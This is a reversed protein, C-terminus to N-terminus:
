VARTLPTPMSTGGAQGPWAGIAAVWNGTKDSWAGGTDRMSIFRESVAVDRAVWIIEGYGALGLCLGGGSRDAGFAALSTALPTAGNMLDKDAFRVTLINTGDSIIGVRWDADTYIVTLTSGDEVASDTFHVLNGSDGGAVAIVHNGAAGWPDAIITSYLVLTDVAGAYTIVAKKPAPSPTYGGRVAGSEVGLSHQLNMPSRFPPPNTSTRWTVSVTGYGYPQDATKQGQVYFINSSDVNLARACDIKGDSRFTTISEILTWAPPTATIDPAYWIGNDDLTSENKYTLLWASLNDAVAVNLIDGVDAGALADVKIDEWTPSGTYFDFSRGIQGYNWMVVVNANEAVDAFRVGSFYVGM